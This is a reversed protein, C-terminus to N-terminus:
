KTEEGIVVVGHPTSTAVRALALKQKLMFMFLPLDLLLLLLIIFLLPYNGEHDRTNFQAGSLARPALNRSSLHCGTALARLKQKVGM